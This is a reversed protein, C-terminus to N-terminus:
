LSFTLITNYKDYKNKIEERADSMKGCHMFDATTVGVFLIPTLIVIIQCVVSADTIKTKNKCHPLVQGVM